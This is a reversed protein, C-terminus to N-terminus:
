PCSGPSAGERNDTEEYEEWEVPPYAGGEPYEPYQPNSYDRCVVNEEHDCKSGYSDLSEDWATGPACERVFAKGWEDCQIYLTCSSPHAHYGEGTCYLSVQTADTAGVLVALIIIGISM